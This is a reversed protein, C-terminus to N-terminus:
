MSSVAVIRGDAMSITRQACKAAAADHTVMVITRGEKNMDEFFQLVHESTEPDLAGTPEDAFIIGPDNALMRALAVRQQQGVSLESPKHDMREGLGVRILLESAKAKQQQKGVQSLLLPIQVNEMATLYPVLNFRQFVFGAKARRIEARERESMDFLSD